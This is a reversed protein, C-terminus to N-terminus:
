LLAVLAGTWARRIQVPTRGLDHRQQDWAEFSTLTSIVSVVDDRTAPPLRQLEEAFHIEIQEVQRARVQRLSEAFHDHDPVRARAFRAIPAIQQYLDARAAALRRARAPLPGIGLRPVDFLHAYRELYRTTAQHRLDDLREFYRFLTAESVGAREAIAVANPAGGELVLDVVSDLVALRGRERRARRGDVAPEVEASM